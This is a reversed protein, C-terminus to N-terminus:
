KFFTFDTIKYIYCYRHNCLIHFLNNRGVTTRLKTTLHPLEQHPDVPILYPADVSSSSIRTASLLLQSVLFYCVAAGLLGKGIYHDLLEWVGRWYCMNAWGCMYWYLRTITYFTIYFQRGLIQYSNRYKGLRRAIEPYVLFLLVSSSGGIIYSTWESFPTQGNFVYASQLDWTGRWYCVELPMTVLLHFLADAISLHSCSRLCRLVATM